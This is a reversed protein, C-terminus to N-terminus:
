RSEREKCSGCICSVESPVELHTKGVYLVLFYLSTLDYLSLEKIRVAHLNFNHLLVQSVWYKQNNMSTFSVARNVEDAEM